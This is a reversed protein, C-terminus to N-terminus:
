MVQNPKPTLKTILEQETLSGLKSLPCIYRETFRKGKRRMVYVYKLQNRRSRERYIWGHARIITRAEEKDMAQIQESERQTHAVTITYLLYPCYTLLICSQIHSRNRSLALKM